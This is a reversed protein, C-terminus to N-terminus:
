RALYGHERLSEALRAAMERYGAANLHVRDARMSPQGLLSALGSEVVPVDLRRGLDAYLAANAIGSPGFRPVPVIAIPTKTARAVEICSSLAATVGQEPLRRLFDNGGLLVIVLRPRHEDLLLPLRACGESATEGPTGANIVQWGSTQALVAPYSAAQAAGTGFTLSDGLAVVIADRPLPEVRPKRGCAAIALATAISVICAVVQFAPRRM